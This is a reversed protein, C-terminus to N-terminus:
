RADPGHTMAIVPDGGAPIERAADGRHCGGRSPRGLRKACRASERRARERAIRESTDLVAEFTERSHDAHRPCRTLAEVDLWDYLLFSLTDRM